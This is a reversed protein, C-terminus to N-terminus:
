DCCEDGEWADRGEQIRFYVIALSAPSDLWWAGLALQAILGLVVVFSQWGCTISEIVDARLM